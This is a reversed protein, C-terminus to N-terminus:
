PILGDFHEYIKTIDQGYLIYAEIVRDKQEESLQVNQNVAGM